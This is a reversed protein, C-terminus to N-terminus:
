GFGSWGEPALLEEISVPAGLEKNLHTSWVDRVGWTVAHSREDIESTQLYVAMGENLWRPIRPLRAHLFAHATQATGSNIRHFPQIRREGASVPNGFHDVNCASLFLALLPALRRGRRVSGGQDPGGCGSMPLVPSAPSAGPPRAGASTPTAVIRTMM